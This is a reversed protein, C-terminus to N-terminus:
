NYIPPIVRQSVRRAQEYAGRKEIGRLAELLQPTTIEHIPIDGLTPIIDKELSIIVKKTHNESWDARQAEHWDRAIAEFSNKKAVKESKKYAAPDEGNKIKERAEERLARAEALTTFPYEGHSLLKEKGNIRYKQRWYKAGNKTVYIYLGNSDSIKYPKGKGKGKLKKIKTDTLMRIHLQPYRNRNSFSSGGFSNSTM